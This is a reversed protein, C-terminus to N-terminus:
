DNMSSDPLTAALAPHSAVFREWSSKAEVDTELHQLIELLSLAVHLEAKWEDIDKQTLSMGMLDATNKVAERQYKILAQISVRQQTM